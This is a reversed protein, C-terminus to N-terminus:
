PEQCLPASIIYSYGYTYNTVKYVTEGPFARIKYRLDGILFVDNCTELFHDRYDDYDAYERRGILSKLLEMTQAQTLVGTQIMGSRCAADAVLADAGRYDLEPHDMELVNSQNGLSTEEIERQQYVLCFLKRYIRYLQLYSLMEEQTEVEELRQLFLQLFLKEGELADEFGTYMAENYFRLGDSGYHETLYDLIVAANETREYELMTETDTLVYLRFYYKAYQNSAGRLISGSAYRLYRNDTNPERYMSSSGNTFSLLNSYQPSGILTMAYVAAMGARLSDNGPMLTALYILNMANTEAENTLPLHLTRNQHDASTEGHDCPFCIHDVYGDLKALFVDCIFAKTDLPDLFGFLTQYNPYYWMLQTVTDRIQQKAHPSYDKRDLFQEMYLLIEDADEQSIKLVLAQLAEETFVASGYNEAPERYLAGPEHIQPLVVQDYPEEPEPIEVPIDFPLDIDPIAPNEVPKSFEPAYLFSYEQRGNRYLVRVGALYHDYDFLGWGVYYELILSESGNEFLIYRTGQLYAFTEPKELGLCAFLDEGDTFRPAFAPYYSYITQEYVSAHDYQAAANRYGEVVWDAVKLDTIVVPDEPIVPFNEVMPLEQLLSYLDIAQPAEEEACFSLLLTHDHDTYAMRIKANEAALFQEALQGDISIICSELTAVNVCTVFTDEGCYIFAFAGDDSMHFVDAPGLAEPQGDKFINNRYLIGDELWCVYQEHLYMSVRDERIDQTVERGDALSYAYYKGGREMIAVTNDAALRVVNGQLIIPDSIRDVQDIEKLSYFAWQDSDSIVINLRNYWVEDSFYGTRGKSEEPMVRYYIVSSDEAYYVKSSAYPGDVTIARNQDSLLYLRIEEGEYRSIKRSYTPYEYRKIYDGLPNESYANVKPFHAAAISGDPSYSFEYGSTNYIRRMGSTDSIPTCTDTVINYCMYGQASGYVDDVRIICSGGVADIGLVQICYELKQQTRETNIYLDFCFEWFVTLREEENKSQHEDYFLIFETDPSQKRVDEVPLGRSMYYVYEWLIRRNTDSNLFGPYDQQARIEINKMLELFIANTDGLIREQLDVLRDTQTDYFVPYGKESIYAIYRRGVLAQFELTQEGSIVLPTTQLVPTGDALRTTDTNLFYVGYKDPTYSLTQGNMPAYSLSFAAFDDMLWLNEATQLKAPAVPDPQAIVGSLLFALLAAATCAAATVLPWMKRKPKPFAADDILDDDIDGIAELLFEKDNM